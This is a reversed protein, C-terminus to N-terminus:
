VVNERLILTFHGLFTDQFNVRKTDVKENKPRSVQNKSWTLVFGLRFTQLFRIKSKGGFQAMKQGKKTCFKAFNYIKDQIQSSNEVHFKM